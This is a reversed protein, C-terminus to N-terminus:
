AQAGAGRLVGAKRVTNTVTLSPLAPHEQAKIFRELTDRQWDELGRCNHWTQGIGDRINASDVLLMALFAFDEWASRSSM